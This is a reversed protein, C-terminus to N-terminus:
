SDLHRTIKTQLDQDKAANLIVSCITQELSELHEKCVQITRQPGPKTPGGKCLALPERALLDRVVALVESMVWQIYDLLQQLNRVNREVSAAKTRTQFAGRADYGDYYGILSAAHNLADTAGMQTLTRYTSSRREAFWKLQRNQPRIDEVVSCLRMLQSEIVALETKIEEMLKDSDREGM